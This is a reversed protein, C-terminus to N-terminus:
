TLEEGSGPEDVEDESLAKLRDTLTLKIPEGDKGTIESKRPPYHGLLKHADQRARQRTPIDDLRVEILTEGDGVKIDVDDDDGKVYLITGSQAIVRHNTKPLGDERVAGKIKLHKVFKANLERKLKRALYTPTLGQKEVAEAIPRLIAETLEQETVSM